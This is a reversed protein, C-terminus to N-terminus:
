VVAGCHEGAAGAQGGAAVWMGVARHPQRMPIESPSAGQRACSGASGACLRSGCRGSPTSCAARSGRRMPLSTKSSVRSMSAITAPTECNMSASLVRGNTTCTPKPSVWRTPPCPKPPWGYSALPM